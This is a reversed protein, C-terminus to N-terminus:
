DASDTMGKYDTQNFSCSATCVHIDSEAAGM